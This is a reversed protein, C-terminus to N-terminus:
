KRSSGRYPILTNELTERPVTESFMSLMWGVGTPIARSLSLSECEVIVGAADQQYRWYSNMRWIFGDDSGIPKEKESSSDPREVEAIRTAVSQSSVRTPSHYRYVSTYDADFVATIIKKRRIRYFYQFKTDDRSILRSQVIENFYHTHNAYDQALRLAAEMKMGPIFISGYWHHILGEPVPIEQGNDARTNMKLVVVQGHQLQSHVASSETNSLFDALLFKQGDNLESSIRKETLRVYADWAAITQPKLDAARVLSHV